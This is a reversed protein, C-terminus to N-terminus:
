PCPVTGACTLGSPGPVEGFFTRFVNFDPISIVGDCDHDYIADSPPTTTGMNARLMNFDPIAVSGDNNYDPDCHNGYGDQDSDCQSPNAIEMCNDFVDASGDGDGDSVSGKVIQFVDEIDGDKDIFYGDLVHGEVDVVLSGEYNIAFAMAPHLTLPGTNKSSSGVVSYVTGEHAAPGLTAKLYPGDGAPDGDGGDVTHAPGFTSSVDYHSDILKSREYSHSHGTLHLDVGYLEIVPLFKERMEGLHLELDSDHSGKTYPPHHWFVIIWDKATSALDACLWQYMAGGEGPPCVNTTPDVPAARSTDHSDLAVFHINGYDFAYYAETGSPVGGAEAATPMTFAEYYPGTQTPSDSAGFEHNGPVPWLPTDRLITPYVDFLGATYQADTGTTYANDGLMLWLDAYGAQALFADAVATADDCGLQNQACQGSDGIVWIRVWERSDPVPSTVLLHDLDGGALVQTGGGVDYYYLTSPELGSVEVAHDTRFVLDSFTSDLAGPAPGVRARSASPVDTRWRIVMSNPTSLQLYPGRVLSPTPQASATVLELDFSIDTSTPSVQHIEVALLNNGTVLMAPNLAMEHFVLEDALGIALVARSLSDISGGPMNTRFVETGNLFVVAGDDRLIRLSLGAISGPDAVNYTHRFFTTIFRNGVPGGGVLTAEDGDGYGLQAPGPPWLSDDFGTEKWASGPDSGDDLYNWTAGSSILDVAGSEPASLALLGIALAFGRMARTAITVRLRRNSRV